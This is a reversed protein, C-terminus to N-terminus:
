QLVTLRGIQIRTTDTVNVLPVYVRRTVVCFLQWVGIFKKLTIARFLQNFFDNVLDGAEMRYNLKTFSKIDIRCNDFYKLKCNIQMLCLTEQFFVNQTLVHRTYSALTYRRWQYLVRVFQAAKVHTCRSSCLKSIM